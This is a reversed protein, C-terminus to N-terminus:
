PRVMLLATLMLVVAILIGILAMEPSSAFVIPIPGIIFVSGYQVSASKILLLALGLMLIVFGAFVKIPNM